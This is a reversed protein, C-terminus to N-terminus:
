TQFVAVNNVMGQFKLVKDLLAENQSKNWVSIWESLRSFDRKAFTLHTTEMTFGLALLVGGLVLIITLLIFAAKSSQTSKGSFLYIHSVERCRDIACHSDSEESHSPARPLVGWVDGAQFAQKMSSSMYQSVTVMRLTVWGRVVYTLM